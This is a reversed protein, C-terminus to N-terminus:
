QFYAPLNSTEYVDNPLYLMSICALVLLIGRAVLYATSALISAVIMIRTPWITNQFCIPVICCGYGVVIVLPSVMIVTSAYKRLDQEIGTGLTSGGMLHILGYMVVLVGGAISAWFFPPLPGSPMPLEPDLQPTEFINSPDGSWFIPVASMDLVSYLSDQNGLIYVYIVQWTTRVPLICQGHTQDLDVSVRTRDDPTMPKSWWPIFTFVAILAHAVMMVELPAM